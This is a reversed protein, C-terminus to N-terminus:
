HVSRILYYKVVPLVTEFHPIEPSCDIVYANIGSNLSTSKIMRWKINHLDPFFGVSVDEIYNTKLDKYRDIGDPRTAMRLSYAYVRVQGPKKFLLLGDTPNAENIGLPTIEIEKEIDEFVSYARNYCKQFNTKAFDLIRHINELMGTNDDIPQRVIKFNEFDLHDIDRQLKSDMELQAKQYHLVGEIQSKLHDLYPYFRLNEFHSNLYQMYGLIQYSKYEFDFIPKLLWNDNLDRM